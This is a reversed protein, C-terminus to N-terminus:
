GLSKVFAEIERDNRLIIVKGGDLRFDDLAKMMDARHTKRFNWVYKLFALDLREPCGKGMDPRVHGYSTCVRKLVRLVCTFSGHDLYIATDASKLRKSLTAGFNGDMIWRGQKVLTEHALRQLFEERSVSVWGPDWFLRDLHIVSLGLLPGLRRSLTSKGSGPCGLILIKNMGDM